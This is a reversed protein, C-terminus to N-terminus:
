AWCSLLQIRGSWIMCCLHSTRAIISLHWKTMIFEFWFLGLIESSKFQFYVAATSCHFERINIPFHQVSKRSSRIPHRSKENLHSFTCNPSCTACKWCCCVGKLGSLWLAVYLASLEQQHITRNIRYVYIRTISRLTFRLSAATARWKEISEESEM